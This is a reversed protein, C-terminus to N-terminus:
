LQLCDNAKFMEMLTHMHSNRAAIVDWVVSFFFQANKELGIMLENCDWQQPPAKTPKAGGLCLM